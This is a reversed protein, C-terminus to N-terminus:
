GPGIVMLQTLHLPDDLEAELQIDILSIFQCAHVPVCDERDNKRAKQDLSKILSNPSLYRCCKAFVRNCCTSLIRTNVVRAKARFEWGLGSSDEDNPRDNEKSPRAESSAEAIWVKASPSEHTLAM